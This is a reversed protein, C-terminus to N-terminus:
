GKASQGHDVDGLDLQLTFCHALLASYVENEQLIERNGVLIIQERARTLAVNLKRDVGEESMSVLSELQRLQNTCLSILIINRAGGQYREVTDITIPLKQLGARDLEQRIVAIQARYPTIVGLVDEDDWQIFNHKFLRTYAQVCLRIAEAEYRNTKQHDEQDVPAPLYIMRHNTLAETLPDALAPAKWPIPGTLRSTLEPNIELLELTNQYFYASPFAMIDRHMRGQQRLQAYAWSWGSRTAKRYLREFLSDRLNRVELEELDQDMVRSDKGPQVVVAPLQQHDGILIWKPVRTVMGLLYPDLIQSAEDVIAVQFEVLDFLERKSQLSAVTGVIIRQSHLWTLLQQRNSIKEIKHDLLWDQYAPHTSYRSGIRFYQNEADKALTDLAACMEDVARNTYALLLMRSNEQQMYAECVARLLTSTKGTGPPGWVLFYERADLAQQVLSQQEVTLGPAPANGFPVPTAPPRRGLWLKRLDVPSAGWISLGQYQTNYSSDILDREMNWFPFSAFLGFETMQNRLRVHVEDKTLRVITSKFIQHHLVSPEMESEPYLVCIDGQRFNALPNTGESRKFVLIPTDDTQHHARNYVLKGLLAYQDEKEEVANLWLSAMGNVEQNGQLGTKALHHETAIFRIFNLVYRKEIPDLNAYLEQLSALNARAFGFMTNLDRSIYGGFSHDKGAPDLHMWRKELVVLENRVNMAELQMSKVVPAYKLPKEDLRSYLIYNSAQKISYVSKVLLDYLLTQAYHNSSLGYANARYPSGSKLEIIETKQGDRYFLDLRGQIGYRVSFFTPELLVERLPIGLSPLVDNVVSKLHCFHKKADNMLERLTDNDMAAFGLPNIRFVRRFLEMFSNEQFSILEDLFFNAINGMMLAPTSEMPTFKRLVYTMADAGEPQFTESIATIDMLYDPEFIFQAPHLIGERDVEVDLLNMTVPWLQFEEISDIPGSFLENRGADQYRILRKVDPQDETYGTLTNPQSGRGTVLTRITGYFAVTEYAAEDEWWGPNAEIRHQAPLTIKLVGSLVVGLAYLGMAYIDELERDVADGRIVDQAYHRFRHLLYQERKDVQQKTLVYAMRAFLTSFFLREQQTTHFFTYTFVQYTIRIRETVPMDPQSRIQGLEKIILQHIPLSM